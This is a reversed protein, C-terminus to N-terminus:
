QSNTNHTTPIPTFVPPIPITPPLNDKARGLQGRRGEGFKMNAREWLILLEGFLCIKMERKVGFFTSVVRLEEYIDRKTEREAKKSEGSKDHWEEFYLHGACFDVDIKLFVDCSNRISDLTM